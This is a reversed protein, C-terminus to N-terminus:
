EAQQDDTYEPQSTSKIRPNQNVICNNAQAQQQEELSRGSCYQHCSDCHNQQAINEAPDNRFIELQRCDILM